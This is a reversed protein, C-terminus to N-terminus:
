FNSEFFYFHIHKHWQQSNLVKTGSFLVVVVACMLRIMIWIFYFIIWFLGCWASACFFCCFFFLFFLFYFQLFHFLIVIRKLCFFCICCFNFSFRIFSLFGFFMITHLTYNFRYYCHQPSSRFLVFYFFFLQISIIETAKKKNQKFIFKEDKVKQRGCFPAVSNFASRVCYCFLFM